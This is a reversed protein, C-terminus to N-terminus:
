VLSCVVLGPKMGSAIMAILGDVDSGSELFGIREGFTMETAIDLSLYQLWDRLNFIANSTQKSIFRGNIQEFFYTLTSDIHSEYKLVNTTSMMPALHRTQRTHWIPDMGTFLVDKIEGNVPQALLAYSESQELPKPDTLKRASYPLDTWINAGVKRLSGRPGGLGTIDDVAVPDAFALENPGVRVIDGYKRHIDVYYQKNASSLAYRVKWLNSISALFPGNFKNLGNSYRCKLFYIIFAVVSALFIYSVM